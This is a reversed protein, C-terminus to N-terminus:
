TSNYLIGYPVTKGGVQRTLLPLKENTGTNERKYILAGHVFDELAMDGAVDGEGIILENAACCEENGLFKALPRKQNLIALHAAVGRENV